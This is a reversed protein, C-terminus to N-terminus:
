RRVLGHCFVVHSLSLIAPVVQCIRYGDVPLSPVTLCYLGM